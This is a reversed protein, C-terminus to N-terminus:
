FTKRFFFFWRFYRRHFELTNPFPALVTPSTTRYSFIFLLSAIGGLFGILILLIFTLQLKFQCMPALQCFFLLGSGLLAWIFTYFHIKLMSLNKPLMRLIINTAAWSISAFIPLFSYFTFISSTPQM